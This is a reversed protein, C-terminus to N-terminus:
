MCTRPVYRLNQAYIVQRMAAEEASTANGTLSVVDEVPVKSENMAVSLNAVHELAPLAARLLNQASDITADLNLTTGRAMTQAVDM